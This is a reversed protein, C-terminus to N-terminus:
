SHFEEHIIGRGATMWQVDGAGIVDRNGVSDAHEVEGQFALTVTEFGRHPHQGVGLQASTPPFEKPAAYDFMLWPSIHKSFALRDFVPFVKFGDGVWHPRPANLVTKISLAKQTSMKISSDRNNGSSCTSDQSCFSSSTSLLLIILLFSFASSSSCSQGFTRRNM